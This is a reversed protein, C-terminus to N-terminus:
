WGVWGFWGCFCFFCIGSWVCVCIGFKGWSLVLWVVVWSFIWWVFGWYWCCFIFCLICGCWVVIFWFVFWVGLWIWNGCVVSILFVFSCLLRCVFLGIWVLGLLVDCLLMGVVFDWVLVGFRGVYFVLVYCCWFLFLNEVCWGVYVLFCVCCWFWVVGCFDLGGCFCVLWRRWFCVVWFCWWCGCVLFMIDCFGGLWVFLM